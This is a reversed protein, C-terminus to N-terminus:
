VASLVFKMYRQNRKWGLLETIKQLLLKVEYQIDSAWSLDIDDSYTDLYGKIYNVSDIIENLTEEIQTKKM